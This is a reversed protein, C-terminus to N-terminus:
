RPAARKQAETRRRAASIRSRHEATFPPMKQGKHAASMKARTETSATRGKNTSPRGRLTASIRARVEPAVTRGINMTRLRHLEAETIKRRKGIARLKEITEPKHKRGRSINAMQARREPSLSVGKRRASLKQRTEESAIRGRNAEGIKRKTELSLPTGRRWATMKLRWEHSFPARRKGRRADGIKKRTAVSHNYYGKLGTTEGAIRCLNYEPNLTDIYHQERAKLQGREAVTELVRCEFAAEGYFGFAHQLHPNVHRHHRLKHLHSNWRTHVDVAQGVYTHGTFANTILYIGCVHPLPQM